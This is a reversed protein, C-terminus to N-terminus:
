SCYTNMIGLNWEKRKAVYHFAFKHLNAYLVTAAVCVVFFEPRNKQQNKKKCFPPSDVRKNSKYM